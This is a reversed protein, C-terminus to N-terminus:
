GDLAREAWAREEDTLPQERFMEDLLEDFKRSALDNRIAEAVYASFSPIGRARMEERATEALDPPLSIALKEYPMRPSRQRTKGAM